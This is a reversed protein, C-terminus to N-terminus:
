DFTELLRKGLTFEEGHGAYVVINPDLQKIWPMSILEFDKRSGSLMSTGTYTDGLLTDGTFLYKNDILLCAGGQSHGPTQKFLLTHGQWHMEKTGSFTIDAYGSYEDVHILKCDKLRVQIKSFEDYYRSQNIKPDGLGVNCPETAIVPIRQAHIWDLGSIHDFHEHTLFCYDVRMNSRGILQIVPKMKCPDVIICHGDSEIVYSNSLM